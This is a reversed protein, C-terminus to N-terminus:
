VGYRKNGMKNFANLKAIGKAHSGDGVADVSAKSLMYEGNSAMVPVLDDKPGGPGHITGGHPMFMPRKLASGEKAFTVSSGGIPSIKLAARRRAANGPLTKTMVQRGKPEPPDILASSLVKTLAGIGANFMAPNEMAYNSISDLMGPEPLGSIDPAQPQLDAFMQDELLDEPKAEDIESFDVDMVTSTMEPTEPKEGYLATKFAELDFNELRDKELEDFISSLGFLGGGNNRQLVGGMAASLIGFDSPDIGQSQLYAMLEDEQNMEPQDVPDYRFDGFEKIESGAIPSIEMDPGPQITPATGSGIAAKPDPTRNSQIKGALLSGGVTIAAAVIFSM